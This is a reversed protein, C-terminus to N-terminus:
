CRVILQRNAGSVYNPFIDTPCGTGLVRNSSYGVRSTSALLNTRSHGGTAVQQVDRAALDTVADETCNLVPLQSQSVRGGVCSYATEM